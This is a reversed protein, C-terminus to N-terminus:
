TTGNQELAIADIEVLSDKPLRAVEITTRAPPHPGLIELFPVFAQVPPTLQPLTINLADLKEYVPM